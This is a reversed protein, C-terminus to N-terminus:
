YVMFSIVYKVCTFLLPVNSDHFRRTSEL